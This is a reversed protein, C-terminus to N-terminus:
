RATACACWSRPSVLRRDPLGDFDLYFLFPAPNVRRLARYLAFPPLPFPPRSASRCCSRSSTAPASTSRRRARGDGPVRGRRRTRSRRSPTSDARTAGSTSAAPSARAGDIVRTSGRSRAGRLRGARRRRSAAAGAHDALDRGEGRRVRGDRDAPDPDRRARRARRPEADPLREMLRVMDYGLYGFLGAAMPPLDTPSRRHASEAILARLSDLPPATTPTSASSRARARQRNIEAVGDRCRWVLDPELGIISYRGRM